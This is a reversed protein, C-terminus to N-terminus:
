KSKLKDIILKNIDFKGYVVEVQVEQMNGNLFYKRWLDDSEEGAGDLQFLTNSYKKSIRIMDKNHDYWKCTNDFMNEFLDDWEYEEFLEKLSITMLISYFDQTTDLGCNPCISVNFIHGCYAKNPDHKSVSLDYQTYYGM